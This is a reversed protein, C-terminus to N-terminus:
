PSRLLKDVSAETAMTEAYQEVIINVKSRRIQLAECYYPLLGGYGLSCEVGGLDIRPDDM